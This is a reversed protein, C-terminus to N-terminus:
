KEGEQTPSKPNDRDTLQKMIDVGSSTGIREAGHNILEEVVDIQRIGGSAKVKLDDRKYHNIIFLDHPTVGRTEWGTCTKIWEAKTESVLRAADAIQRDTLHPTSIIIKLVKEPYAEKVLNIEDEVKHYSGDLFASINMVMDIEDVRKQVEALKAEPSNYGLPFGVVQGVKVPAHLLRTYVYDVWYPPVMVSYFRYDEAEEVLKDYDKRTKNPNLMTHDILLALEQKIM